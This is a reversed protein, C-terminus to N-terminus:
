GANGELPIGGPERGGPMFTGGGPRKPPLEKKEGQRYDNVVDPGGGKRGPWTGGLKGGLPGGALKLPGGGPMFGLEAEGGPAPPPGLM